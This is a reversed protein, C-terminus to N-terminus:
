NNNYKILRKINKKLTVIMRKVNEKNDKDIDDDFSPLYGFGGRSNVLKEDFHSDRLNRRRLISNLTNNAKVFEDHARKTEQENRLNRIEIRDLSNFARELEHKETETPHFAEDTGGRQKKGSGLNMARSYLAKDLKGLREAREARVRQPTEDVIDSLYIPRSNKEKRKNYASEEAKRNNQHDYEEDDSHMIRMEERHRITEEITRQRDTLNQNNNNRVKWTQHLSELKEQKREKEKMKTDQQAWIIYAIQGLEEYKDEIQTNRRLKQLKERLLNTNEANLKYQEVLEDARESLPDEEEDKMCSTCNGKGMLRNAIAGVDTIKRMIGKLGKVEKLSENINQNVFLDYKTNWLNNATLVDTVFKQCNSTIGDYIFFENNGMIHIANNVFEELTISNPEVFVNVHEFDEVKNRDSPKLVPQENKEFLMWMGNHLMIMLYLHFVTDYHLDKKTNSYKGLTVADLFLEVGKAIPERCIYIKSIGYPGYQELHRKFENSPEAKVRFM